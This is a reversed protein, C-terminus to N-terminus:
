WSWRSASRARVIVPQGYILEAPSDELMIKVPVLREGLGAVSDTSIGSRRGFQVVEGSYETNMSPLVVNVKMGPSLGQADSESFAANVWYADRNYGSLLTSGKKVTAGKSFGLETVIGHHPSRVELNARSKGLIELEKEISSLRSSARMRESSITARDDVLEGSRFINGKDAEDVLIQQLEVEKELQKQKESLAKHESSVTDLKRPTLVGTKVLKKTRGLEKKILALKVENGKLEQQKIDLAKRAILQYADVNLNLKALRSELEQIQLNLSVRLSEKERIALELEDSALLALRQGASIIDGPAVDLEVIRADLPIRVEFTPADVWATVSESYQLKGALLTALYLLGLLVAVILATRRVIGKKQIKLGAEDMPQETVTPVVPDNAPVIVEDVTDLNGELAAKVLSQLQKRGSEDLGIFRFGAEDEELWIVECTLHLSIDHGSFPLVFKLPQKKGSKFASSKGSLAVRFGDLSWDLVSFRQGDIM